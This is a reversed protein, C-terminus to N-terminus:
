FSGSLDFGQCFLKADMHKSHHNEIPSNVFNIAAQNDIHLRSKDGVDHIVQRERCEHLIRDFWVLNKSTETMAVFESEMIPLNVCKETFTDWDMPSSDVMVIQGGVLTREDRNAAFDTYIFAVM